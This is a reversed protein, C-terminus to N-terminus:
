MPDTDEDGLRKCLCMAIMVYRRGELRAQILISHGLSALSTPRVVRHDEEKTAYIGSDLSEGSRRGVLVM